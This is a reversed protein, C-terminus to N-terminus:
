PPPRAAALARKQNKLAIKVVGGERDGRAFHIDWGSKVIEIPRKKSSLHHETLLIADLKDFNPLTQVKKWDEPDTHGRINFCM